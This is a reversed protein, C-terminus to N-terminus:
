SIEYPTTLRHLIRNVAATVVLWFVAALGYNVIVELNADAPTFLDRFGFALTDAWDAVFRTIENDPNAGGVTLVVYAVLIVAAAGGITRVITSLVGVARARHPRVRGGRRREAEVAWDEEGM